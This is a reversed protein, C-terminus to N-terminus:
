RGKHSTSVILPIRCLMIIGSERCLIKAVINIKYYTVSHYNQLFWKIAVKGVETM